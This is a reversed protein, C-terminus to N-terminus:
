HVQSRAPPAVAASMDSRDNLLRLLQQEQAKLSREFIELGSVSDLQECCQTVAAIEDDLAACLAGYREALTGVGPFSGHLAKTVSRLKAACGAIATDLPAAAEVVSVGTTPLVDTTARVVQALRTHHLKLTPVLSGLQVVGREM